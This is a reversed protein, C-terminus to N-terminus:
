KYGISLRFVIKLSLHFIKSLYSQKQLFQKLFLSDILSLDSSQIISSQLQYYASTVPNKEDFSYYKFYSVANKDYFAIKTSVIENFLSKWKNNKALDLALACFLMDCNIVLNPGNDKEPYEHICYGRLKDSSCIPNIFNYKNVAKYKKAPNLLSCILKNLLISYKKCEDTDESITALLCILRLHPLGGIWGRKMRNFEFDNKLYISDDIIVHHRSEQTNILIELFEDLIKRNKFFLPKDSHWTFIFFNFLKVLSLDLNNVDEVSKIHNIKEYHGANFYNRVSFYEYKNITEHFLVRGFYAKADQIKNNLQKTTM